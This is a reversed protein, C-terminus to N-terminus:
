YCVMVARKQMDQVFLRWIALKAVYFSIIAARYLALFPGFRYVSSISKSSHTGLKDGFQNELSEKRLRAYEASPREGHISTFGTSYSSIVYWGISIKKFDWNVNEKWFFFVISRVLSIIILNLQNLSFYYHNHEKLLNPNM